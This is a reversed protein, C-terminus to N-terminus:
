SDCLYPEESTTNNMGAHIIVNDPRKGRNDIDYRKEM